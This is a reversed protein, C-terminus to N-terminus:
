FDLSEDSESVKASDEADSSAEEEESEEEVDAEEAELAQIVNELKLKREDLARCTAKIEAIVTKRDMSSTSVHKKTSATALDDVHPPEFLRSHLILKAKRGSPIDSSQLIHPHQDLIIGCLLSSFAIPMKVALSKAHKLTQDFIYSGFDHQIESGVIDIFKASLKSSPLQGDRPWQKVQGATIAKALDNDTIDVETENGESRGLYKNIEAPSFNVCKGRVFVKLFDENDPDDCDEPINVVFEKVLKEYCNGINSVTKILGARKILRRISVVELAEESLEREVAVRMLPVKRGRVNKRSSSAVVKTVEVEEEYDSDS